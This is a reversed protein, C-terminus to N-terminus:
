KKILFKDKEQNILPIIKEMIIKDFNSEEFDMTFILYYNENIPILCRSMRTYRRFLYTLKGMKSEFQLRTKHRTITRIAWQHNEEITLMLKLGKRYRENIIIGDQDTIGVWRISRDINLISQTFAYLFKTTNDNDTRESM